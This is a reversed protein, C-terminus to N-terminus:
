NRLVQSCGGVKIFPDIVKTSITSMAKNKGDPIYIFNKVGEKDESDYIYYGRREFQLIHGRNLSKIAPEAYAKTIFETQENLHDELNQGEELKKCKMLHDYEVLNILVYPSDRSIWNLKKTKKFDKDEPMLEGEMLLAEGEGKEIKTIKCNGWRMLTIKEGEQLEKVDDYEMFVSSGRFQVREGLSPNQPHKPIVVTQLDADSDYNNFKLVCTNAHNIVFYREAIPDIIKKNTAWLKDWEMM